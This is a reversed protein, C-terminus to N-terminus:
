KFFHYLKSKVLNLLLHFSAFQKLYFLHESLHRRLLPSWMYLLHYSCRPLYNIVSIYNYCAIFSMAHISLYQFSTNFTLVHFCSIFPETDKRYMFFIGPTLNFSQWWLKPCTSKLSFFQWLQFSHIEAKHLQLHIPIIM